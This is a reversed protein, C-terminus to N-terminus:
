NDLPKKDKELNEFDEEAERDKEEDRRRDAYDLAREWQDPDRYFDSNAM